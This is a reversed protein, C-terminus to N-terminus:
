RKLKKEVELIGSRTGAIGPLLVGLFEELAATARQTNDPAYNAVVMGGGRLTDAGKVYTGLTAGVFFGIVGSALVCRL